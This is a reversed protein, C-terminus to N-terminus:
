KKLISKPKKTTSLNDGDFTRFENMMEDIRVRKKANRSHEPTQETLCERPILNEM